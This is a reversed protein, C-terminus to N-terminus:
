NNRRKKLNSNDRIQNRISRKLHPQACVGKVSDVPTTAIAEISQNAKKKIPGVDMGDYSDLGQENAFIYLEDNRQDLTQPTHIEEKEVHLWWQEHDNGDEEGSFSLDVFRYGQQILKQKAQELLKPEHHTFFYGWLMPQTMDWKADKSINLFMDELADITITKGPIEPQNNQERACGFLALLSGILAPIIKKM